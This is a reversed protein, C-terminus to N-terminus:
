FSEETKEKTLIEFEFYEPPFSLTFDVLVIDNARVFCARLIRNKGFLEFIKNEVISILNKLSDIGYQSTEFQTHDTTICRSQSLLQEVVFNAIRTTRGSRRM